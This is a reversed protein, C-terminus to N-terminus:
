VGLQQKEFVLHGAEGVGEGREGGGKRPWM